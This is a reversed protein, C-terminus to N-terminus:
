AATGPNVTISVTRDHQSDDEIMKGALNALIPAADRHPCSFCCFRGDSLKVALVVASRNGGILAGAILGGGGFALGGAAAWGIKALVSRSNEHTVETVREIESWGIREGFWGRKPTLVIGKARGVFGRWVAGRAKGLKFDGALIEFM